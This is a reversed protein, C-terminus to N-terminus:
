ARPGRLNEVVNQYSDWVAPLDTQPAMFNIGHEFYPLETIDHGSTSQLPASFEFTVNKADGRGINSIVIEM